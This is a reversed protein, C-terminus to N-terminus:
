DFTVQSASAVERGNRFEGPTFGVWQRFVKIFYSGNSYGILQAIEEITMSTQGLLQVAKEMRIKTLYEIPTYRTTQKFSRTFYYKSLEVSSAIDELSQLSNYCTEMHDAALRIKPPWLDKAGNYDRKVRYLEMIFQYAISSARYGDTIHNKSASNWISKLLTIASCDEPMNCVAGLQVLLNQWHEMLNAPRMLIFYFEWGSSWEPLYYQHEGPISVLMAQGPGVRHLTNDITLCGQGSVTYQFLLLPGDIRTMGNWHYNPDTINDHGVSFIQCFSDNMTDLFRYGFTKM